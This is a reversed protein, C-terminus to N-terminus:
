TVVGVFRKPTHRDKARDGSKWTEKVRIPDQRDRYQVNVTDNMYYLWEDPYFDAPHLQGTSGRGARYFKNITNVAFHLHAGQSGGTDGNYGILQGKVVRDNTAPIAPTDLHLYQVFYGSDTRIIIQNGARSPKGNRCIPKNAVVIGNDVAYLPRATSGRFDLAGHYKGSSRFFTSSIGVSIGGVSTPRDGPDGPRTPLCWGSVPNDPFDTWDSGDGLKIGTQTESGKIYKGSDDTYSPCSTDKGSLPGTATAASSKGQGGPPNSAYKSLSSTSGEKFAKNLELSAINQIQIPGGVVRVIRPNFLNEVDEFKVAVLTGLPIPINDTLDSYIDPYTVLVPDTNSNPAPRPELEPIYVKYAYSSYDINKTGKKENQNAKFLYDNFLATKNQYSAYAVLRHSVVVGNFENINNLTDKSFATEAAMRLATTTSTRRRDGSEGSNGDQINNLSGFGLDSMKIEPM